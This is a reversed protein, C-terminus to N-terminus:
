INRYVDLNFTRCVQGGTLANIPYKHSHDILIFAFVTNAMFGDDSVPVGAFHRLLEDSLKYHVIAHIPARRHNVPFSIRVKSAWGRRDLAHRVFESRKKWPFCRCFTLSMSPTKTTSFSMKKQLKYYYM